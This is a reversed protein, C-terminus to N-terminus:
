RGILKNLSYNMPSHLILFNFAFQIRGYFVVFFKKRKSLDAYFIRVFFTRKRADPIRRASTSFDLTKVCVFTFYM